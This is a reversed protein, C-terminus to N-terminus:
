SAVYMLTFVVKTRNSVDGWVWCCVLSGFAFVLLFPM